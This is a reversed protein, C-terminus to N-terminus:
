AARLMNIQTALQDYGAEVNVYPKRTLYVSLSGDDEPTAAQLVSNFKSQKLRTYDTKKTVLYFNRYAKPQPVHLAEAEHELNAGPYYDKLSYERNNHVAIVKQNSPLAATVQEALLKVLGHAKASYPGFQELTKKIGADTFMRNPDFEYRIKDVHFVINRGGPHHLTVLSGGQSLVVARAAKLATTESQHVHVFAKGQGLQMKEIVVPTDSLQVRVYTKTAHGIGFIVMLLLVCFLFTRPLFM